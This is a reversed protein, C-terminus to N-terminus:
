RKIGAIISKIEQLINEKLIYLLGLYVGGSAIINIVVNIGIKNLVFSFVGMIIASIAIKKLHRITYFNNIKKLHHWTPGSNLLLAIVTAIASGIIGYAPILLINFVINGLSGAAIYKLVKRQQNHALILNSMLISPSIILFTVILIQFAPVGPLYEEGFVLKFIPQSLIIGGIVLPIAIFFIIAMTKENLIREKQEDKQKVIRSIAPFIGAALLGPLTYLIQIIRQGASYYGIEEASRWWGLMILDTNLMFVGLMTSFVIPWCAYLTERILNKNFLRFIKFFQDKLILIALGASVGVSAIYSLILSKSTPSISLIIFGAIVITVNMVILILAEREMKEIGRLYATALERLGDFIVLFAVFPILSKAEEINTFHPAIFVVLLATFLLLFIKIWFSASFYEDRKEPHSAINRTLLPNVGIDSFLTFFGAFGLVYSFVGYESAGLVRAAYIIIIARILRSGIQSLSLWFINKTITQRATTNKFFLNKIREIM